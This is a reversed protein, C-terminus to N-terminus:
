NASINEKELDNRDHGKENHIFKKVENVHMEKTQVHQNSVKVLRGGNSYLIESM